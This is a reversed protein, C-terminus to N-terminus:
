GPRRAYVADIRVYKEYAGGGFSTRATHRRTNAASVTTVARGRRPGANGPRSALSDDILRNNASFDDYAVVRPNARARRDDSPAGSRGFTPACLTLIRKRAVPTNSLPPM